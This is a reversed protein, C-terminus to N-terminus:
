SYKEDKREKWTLAKNTQVAISKFGNEDGMGLGKGILARRDLWQRNALIGRIEIPKRHGRM